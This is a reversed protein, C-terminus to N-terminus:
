RVFASPAPKDSALGFSIVDASGSELDLIWWVGDRYIAADARGDGDYDAPVPVDTSIGFQFAAIGDTSRWLYWIGDRYVAPDTKGDADYDAPVLVDDALGFNLAWLQGTSSQRVYWIGNSPRFIAADTQGDGDFDAAVAKDDSTGWIINTINGQPNALSGRYYFTGQTGGRYVAVDAKGDGDWDGGTPVDGELGFNETRVTGDSSNLIYFNGESPRWVALDTKLDGDYDAPALVDTELGFQLSTYGAQSRLLHWVGDSPRFVSVDSRGDGDYDFEAKPVSSIPQWDAAHIPLSDGAFAVPSSRDANSTLVFFTQGTQTFVNTYVIKTGDPSYSGLVGNSFRVNTGDANMTYTQLTGNYPPFPGTNYSFIIKSGDPSYSPAVYYQNPLNNGPIVQQNSGDANMTSLMVSVDGNIYVIKQGDPSFAPYSQRGPDNTLRVQNSGDLNMKYIESNGDRDSVFAITLGDPSYTPLFDSAANDTLRTVDSGDANMSYIENNGDRDSFFAIRGGDPSWNPAADSATPHDTINILDTGNSNMTFIEGNRQFAIKGNRVCEGNQCAGLKGVNGVQNLSLDRLDRTPGNEDDAQASVNGFYFSGVFLALLVVSVRTWGKYSLFNPHRNKM